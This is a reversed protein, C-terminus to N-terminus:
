YTVVPFAMAKVLHVKTPLTIDRIKIGLFLDTNPSSSSTGVSKPSGHPQGSKTKGDGQWLMHIEKLVREKKVM